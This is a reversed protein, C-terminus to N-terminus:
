SIHNKLLAESPCPFSLEFWFTSGVGEKSDLQIDGGMKEILEKCISLGLGTGGYNRTTSSDAQSFKQFIKEKVAESVGIGTDSVAFKIKAKEKSKDVLQISLSVGGEHTFKVANSLLNMLIQKIRMPDFQLLQPIQADVSVRLKLQKENVIGLVIDVAHRVVENLNSNISELVLEGAEIKSIDLVDNILCLLTEASQVITSAYKVQKESLETMLLLDGMGTIANLPTRIEHSMNALFASKAISAQMADEKAKELLINRDKLERKYEESREEQQCAVILVILIELVPMLSFINDHVFDKKQSLLVFIGISRKHRVLPMGLFSYSCSEEEVSIGSQLVPNQNNLASDIFPKIKRILDHRVTKKGSFMKISDSWDQDSLAIPIYNGANKAEPCTVIICGGDCKLVNMVDILIQTAANNLSLKSKENIFIYLANAVCDLLTTSNILHSGVDDAILVQKLVMWYLPRNDVTIKKLGVEKAYWNKNIVKRFSGEKEQESVFEKIEDVSEESIFDPCTHNLLFDYVSLGQVKESSLGFEEEVPKNIFLVAGDQDFVIVKDVITSAIEVLLLLQTGM